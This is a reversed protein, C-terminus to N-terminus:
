LRLHLCHAALPRFLPHLSGAQYLLRRQRNKNTSMSPLAIVAIAATTKSTAPPSKFIIAFYATSFYFVEPLWCNLKRVHHANRSLARVSLISQFLGGNKAFLRHDRESSSCLCLDRYLCPEFLAKFQRCTRVLTAVDSKDLQSVLIDVLEPIDFFRATAASMDTPRSSPSLSFSLSPRTHTRKPRHPPSSSISFHLSLIIFCFFSIIGLAHKKYGTFVLGGVIERHVARTSRSVELPDHWKDSDDVMDLFQANVFLFFPPSSVKKTLGCTEQNYIIM